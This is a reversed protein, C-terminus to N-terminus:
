RWRAREPHDTYRFEVAGKGARDERFTLICRVWLRASQFTVRRFVAVADIVAESFDFVQSGTVRDTLQNRVIYRWEKKLYAVDLQLIPAQWEGPIRPSVADLLATMAAEVRREHQEESVPRRKIGDADSDRSHSIGHFSSTAYQFPSNEMRPEVPGWWLVDNWDFQVFGDRQIFLLSEGDNFTSASVVQLGGVTLVYFSRYPM